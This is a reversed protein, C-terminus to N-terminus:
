RALDWIQKASEGVHKCHAEHAAAGLQAGMRPFGMSHMPGPPRIQPSVHRKNDGWVIAHKMVSTPELEASNPGCELLKTVVEASTPGLKVWSTRFRRSKARRMQGPMPWDPAIEALEARVRWNPALEASGACQLSYSSWHRHSRVIVVVVVVM